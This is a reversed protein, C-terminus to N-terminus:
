ARQVLEKGRSSVRASSFAGNFSWCSKGQGNKSISLLLLRLSGQRSGEKPKGTRDRHAITAQHRRGVIERTRFVPVNYKLRALM